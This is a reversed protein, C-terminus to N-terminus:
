GEDWGKWDSESDENLSEKSSESEIVDLQGTDAFPDPISIEPEIELGHYQRYLEDTTPLRGKNDLIVPGNESGRNGWGVLGLILGILGFVPGMCCGLMMLLVWPETFLNAQPSINDVFWLTTEGDNHLTYDGAASSRFVRVVVYVTGDEMARDFDFATPASGEDEVGNADILRLNAGEADELRLASYEGLSIIEIQGSEGPELVLMSNKEPDSADIMSPWAYFSSVFGILLLLISAGALRKAWQLTAETM